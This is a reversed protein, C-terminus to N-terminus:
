HGQSIGQERQWQEAGGITIIKRVYEQNRLQDVMFRAVDTRTIPRARIQTTEDIVCVGRPEGEIFSAPRIITWELQSPRVEDEMEKKDKMVGHLVTPVLLYRYYTHVNSNSEGEGIRSLAILRHVHFGQMAEMVNRACEAEVHSDWFPFHDGITDLVADQGAVAERVLSM